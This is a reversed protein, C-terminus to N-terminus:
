RDLAAAAVDRAAALLERVPEVREADVRGPEVADVDARRGAAEGVDEELAASRAHDRDVDAVPLEMRPEAGIRADGHELPRVRARQRLQRERRLERDAVDREDRHPDRQRRHQPEARGAPLRDHEDLRLELGAARVHSLAADHAVVVHPSADHALDGLGREAPLRADGADYVRSQGARLAVPLDEEM